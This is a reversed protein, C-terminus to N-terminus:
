QEIPGPAQQDNGCLKQVVQLFPIIIEFFYNLHDM